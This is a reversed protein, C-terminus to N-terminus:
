LGSSDDSSKENNKQLNNYHSNREAEERERGKKIQADSWQYSKKIKGNRIWYHSRCPLQWNGISPYLTAEGKSESFSWETRGLPTIIKSGCGCPCLHGAVGYEQSVYLIEPELDKPLFKVHLLKIKDIM